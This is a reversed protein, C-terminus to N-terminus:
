PMRRRRVKWGLHVALAIEVKATSGCGICPLPITEPEYWTSAELGWEFVRVLNTGGRSQVAAVYVPLPGLRRSKVSGPLSSIGVSAAGMFSGREGFLKRGRQIWDKGKQDFVRIVDIIPESMVLVNGSGTLSSYALGGTISLASDGIEVYCPLSHNTHGLVRPDMCHPFGVDVNSLNGVNVHGCRYKANV